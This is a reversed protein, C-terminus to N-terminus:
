SVSYSVAVCVAVCQLVGSDLCVAVCQLVCQLVSCYELTLVCQLVSVAVSLSGKTDVGITDIARTRTPEQKM